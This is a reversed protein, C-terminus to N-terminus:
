SRVEALGAYTQPDHVDKSHRQFCIRRHLGSGAAVLQSVPLALSSVDSYPKNVNFPPPSCRLDCLRVRPTNLYIVGRSVHQAPRCSLAPPAVISVIRVFVSLSSALDHAAECKSRDPGRM